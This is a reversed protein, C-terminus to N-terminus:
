RVASVKCLARFSLALLTTNLTSALSGAMFLLMACIFTRRAGVRDAIWGSVPIFIALAILYATLALKLALPDVGLDAAITPLATAVMASDANEIFLASAVISPVLRTPTMPAIFPQCVRM